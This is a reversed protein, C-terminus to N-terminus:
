SSRRSFPRASHQSCRLQLAASAMDQSCALGPVWTTAARVRAVFAARQFEQELLVFSDGLTLTLVRVIGAIRKRVFDLPIIWLLMAVLALSQVAASLVIPDPPRVSEGWWAETMLCAHTHKPTRIKALAFAPSEAETRTARLRADLIRVDGGRLRLWEALWDTLPEGFTLLTESERHDGIGHVFVIGVDAHPTGPVHPHNLKM